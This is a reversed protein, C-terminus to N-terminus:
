REINSSDVVVTWDTLELEAATKEIRQFYLQSDYIQQWQYTNLISDSIFYFKLTGDKCANVEEYRDEMFYVKGTKHAPINYYYYEGHLKPSDNDNLAPKMQLSDACTCYVYVTSDTNNHAFIPSIPPTYECASLIMWMLMVIGFTYKM